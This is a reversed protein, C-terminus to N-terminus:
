KLVEAAVKFATNAAPIGCYIASQLLVEKLEDVTVGNNLAGRLHIRLEAEQGLAVLMAVTICSRTRRDLGPRAWIEGWAYRTLLDQFDETLSSKTAEARDVHADGLVARRIAMGRERQGDSMQKSRGDKAVQLSCRRTMVRSICVSACSSSRTKFRTSGTDPASTAPPFSIGLQNWAEMSGICMEGM